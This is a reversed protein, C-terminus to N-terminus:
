AHTNWRKRAEGLDALYERYREDYFAALEPDPEVATRRLRWPEVDVPDGIASWAVLAAGRVGVLDEDPLYITRGLVDAFLQPAGVAAFAGGTAVIEGSGGLTDFCNRAAFAVSEFLARVLDARSTELSLGIYQGRAGPDVFPAREGSQSFFSLARTGGAGPKSEALLASLGEHDVDLIRQLWAISAAGVMSPMVRQFLGEFPTRLWMGAPPDGPTLDVDTTFVETALTTGFVIMGDGPSFSGGGFACAQLDYPGATVPTGVPLGVLDAGEHNLEFVSLAPAPAQLLHKWEAIGCAELAEESYTGTVINLFPLSADSPDVSLTGTMRFLVADACYGAVHARRLADPEDRALTAILAAHSGPFVGSGTADYVQQAVSHEAGQFWSAVLDNARGDSWSIPPRVARGAADRLWLGDGQATLAVAEITRGDLRAAAVVEQAVRGVADLIEELDQEVIGGPKTHLVSEVRSVHSVRGDRSVLGAKTVSTGIDIGLIM